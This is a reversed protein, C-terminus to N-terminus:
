RRLGLLRLPHRPSLTITLRDGFRLPHRVHPGDVFAFGERMLWTVSVAEGMALVGGTLRYRSL